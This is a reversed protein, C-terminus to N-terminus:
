STQRVLLTIEGVNNADVGGNKWVVNPLLVTHAGDPQAELDGVVGAPVSGNTTVRLWVSGGAVPTGVNVKVPVSGRLMAECMQGALYSDILSSGPTIPYTLQTKVERVAIGAFSAAYLSVSTSNGTAASSLTFTGAGANIATITTGAPIHGDSSLVFMGVQLGALSAPTATTSSNTLSVTTLAAAGGNAIFDAFQRYTGGANDPLLVVTDGFSIANNNNSNAFRPVIFPDGGGLRSYTGPYGRNLGTIPIVSGFSGM